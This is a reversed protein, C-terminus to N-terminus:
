TTRVHNNRPEYLKGREKLKEIGREAKDQGIGNEVARNIVADVPAGKDHGDALTDAIQYMDEEIEDVRESWGTEIVDADFEATEPDLGIESLTYSVLEIAREADAVEVTDSLRARASAEALRVIGELKKAPIPVPADEDYGQSRVDVYFEKMEDKAEQTLTPFCHERAYTVYKQLLKPDIEPTVEETVEKLEEEISDSNTKNERRARVEGSHATTLTHEALEADKEPDPDDIFTFLIDFSSILEPRMDVQEGIPEYQDFRGYKPHGVAMVSTRADFTESATAKSADVSQRQMVTELSSEAESGLEDIGNILAHGQDAELLPGAGIEWGGDNNSGKTRVGTTTLGTASTESGDVEVAHPSCAIASELVKETFTGPDSVFLTHISGRVRTGDPYEKSVGGFLQLVLARKEESFGHVTPAISQELREFLNPDNSFEIIEKEDEDTVESLRHSETIELAIGEVYEGFRTSPNRESGEQDLKPIGSVRVKDGITVNGTIDDEITVELTEASSDEHGTQPEKLLLKQEDIFESKDYNIRFPGQRECGQCEHPENFDDGHQPIRTLTGCRQCEFAATTIKPQVETIKEVTGPITLLMGRHEARLDSIATQEPLGQVRINIQELSVDVTLDFHRLAKEAYERLRVPKNRYDDALEPDFQNLDGWDIYLSKQQDPYRQAFEEIENRYYNNYFEDFSDTIETDDARVM